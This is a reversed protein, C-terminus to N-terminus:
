AGDQGGSLVEAISDYGAAGVIEVQAFEGVEPVREGGVYVLPDVDPAEHPSRAPRLGEDTPRGEEMLVVTRQGVRAAALEFAIDQQLSMLQACRQQRVRLPVQVPLKAAATGEEQSYAFCGVRDFRADRVFQLLEEFERETEGPFGNMLTTRLTLGPIRDRLDAILREIDRRTVKRGMAELIRDNIHQLPLDLYPCVKEEGALVEILEDYVHAPHVYLLRVWQLGDIRCLEPLLAHLRPGGELDVGYSATDQGIVNLEKVGQGALYRAEEIIDAHPRSRLPGRIFPIACYACRNDCGRAIRLYSWAGPTLRISRLMLASPLPEVPCGLARLALKATAEPDIGLIDDAEPLLGRLEEGYRESLCGTVILRRLTGESKRASVDLILEISEEKAPEIFGCTNIIAVEAGELEHTVEVGRSALLSAIQESDVLNKACGLTLLAVKAHPEPQHKPM